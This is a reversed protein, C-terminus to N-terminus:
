KASMETIEDVVKNEVKDEPVNDGTEANDNDCTVPEESKSLDEEMTDLGNEEEFV